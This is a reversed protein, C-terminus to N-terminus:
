NCLLVSCRVDKNLKFIKILVTDGYKSGLNHVDKVIDDKNISAFSFQQLTIIDKIQLISAYKRFEGQFIVKIKRVKGGIGYLVVKRDYLICIFLTGEEYM